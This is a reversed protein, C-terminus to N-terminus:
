GRKSGYVIVATNGTATKALAQVAWYSSVDLDFWGSTASQLTNLAGSTGVLTGTPTVYTNGSFLTVYNGTPGTQAKIIFDTLARTASSVEVFLRNFGVTTEDLIVTNSTIVSVAAKSPNIERHM